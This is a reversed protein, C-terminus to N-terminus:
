SCINTLHKKSIQNQLSRNQEPRQGWASELLSESSGCTKRFVVHLKSSALNCYYSLKEWQTMIQFCFSWNPWCCINNVHTKSEHLWNPLPSKGAISKENQFCPRSNGTVHCFHKTMVWFRILLLASVRALQLTVAWIDSLLLEKSKVQQVFHSLSMVMCWMVDCWM